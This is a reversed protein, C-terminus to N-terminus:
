TPRRRRMIIGILALGALMTAYMAPEPILVSVVVQGHNNIALGESAVIDPGLLTNLLPHLDTTGQGNPGTIFAHSDRSDGTSTASMGIVQGANNVGSFYSIRGDLETLQKSDSHVLYSLKQGLASPAFVFLAACSTFVLFLTSVNLRSTAKMLEM